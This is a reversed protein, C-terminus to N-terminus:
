VVLVLDIFTTTTSSCYETRTLYSYHPSKEICNTITLAYNSQPKNTYPIFSFLYEIDINELQEKNEFLQNSYQIVLPVHNIKSAKQGVFHSGIKIM